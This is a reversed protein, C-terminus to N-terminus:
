PWHWPNFLRDPKGSKEMGYRQLPKTLHRQARPPPIYLGEKLKRKIPVKVKRVTLSHFRCRKCVFGRGRGASKM